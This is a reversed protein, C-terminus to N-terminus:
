KQIKVAIEISGTDFEDARIVKIIGYKGQVNKFPIIKGTYCFKCTGSVSAPKYGNILLSDNQAADFQTVSILNNDTTYYDYVTSNQTTWNNIAPYYSKATTYAPCSLTPSSIGSSLYYYSVLDILAEHGSITSSSYTIGTNIDVFNPLGSNNQYGITISPFYDIDGYASGAGKNVIISVSATDRNSNMIAFKWTEQEANGKYFTVTTDLGGTKIFMGRDLESITGQETIRKITLNTIAFGDGVASIGFRLQGGVPVSAENNTYADGTKLLVFPSSTVDADDSCQIFLLLLVSIILSYFTRM